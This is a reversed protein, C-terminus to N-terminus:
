AVQEVDGAFMKRLWLGAQVALTSIFGGVVSTVVGLWPGSIWVLGGLAVGVGLALLIHNRFRSVMERHASLSTIRKITGQWCHAIGTRVKRVPVGCSSAIGRLCVRIGQCLHGLRQWVGPQAPAPEINGADPAIVPRLKALIDPNTFVEMLVDQVAARVASGVASRVADAVADNLGDALGDLTKDLRNIQESLNPRKQGNAHPMTTAMDNEKEITSQKNHSLHNIKKHSLNKKIPRRGASGSCHSWRSWSGRCRRPSQNVPLDRIKPILM